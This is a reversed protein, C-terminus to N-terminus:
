LGEKASKASNFSIIVLDNKILPKRVELSIKNQNVTSQDGQEHRCYIAPQTISSDFEYIVHLEKIPRLCQYAHNNDYCVRKFKQNIVQLGKKIKPLTLSIRVHDIGHLKFNENYEIKIKDIIDKGNIKFEIVELYEEKALGDIKIFDITGIMSEKDEHLVLEDIRQNESIFYKKDFCYTDKYKITLKKSYGDAQLIDTNILSQLETKMDGNFLRQFLIDLTKNYIEYLKENSLNYLFNYETISSHFAKQIVNTHTMIAILYKLVAASIIVYGISKINSSNQLTLYVGLVVMIVVHTITNLFFSKIIELLPHESFKSKIYNACCEHNKLDNSM